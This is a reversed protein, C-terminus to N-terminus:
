FCEWTILNHGYMAVGAHTTEDPAVLANLALANEKYRLRRQCHGLRNSESSLQSLILKAKDNM